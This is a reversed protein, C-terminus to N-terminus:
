ALQVNRFTCSEFHKMSVTCLEGLSVERTKLLYGVNPQVVVFQRLEIHLRSRGEAFKINSVILKLCNVETTTLTKLAQKNFKILKLSQIEGLTFSYTHYRAELIIQLSLGYVSKNSRKGLLIGVKTYTSEEKHIKSERTVVVLDVFIM